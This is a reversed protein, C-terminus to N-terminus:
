RMADLGRPAWRSAPAPDEVWILGSAAAARRRRSPRRSIRAALRPGTFKLAAASPERRGRRPDPPTTVARECTEPCTGSVQIAAAM